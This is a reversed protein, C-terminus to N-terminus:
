APRAPTSRRRGRLRGDDMRQVEAYGSLLSRFGDYTPESLRGDSATLRDVPIAEMPQIALPIGFTMGLVRHGHPTRGIASLLIIGYLAPSGDSWM